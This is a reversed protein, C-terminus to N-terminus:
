DRQVTDKVKDAGEHVKDKVTGAGRDIKGERKLKDDGSLTGAAEKVGGKVKDTAGNGM